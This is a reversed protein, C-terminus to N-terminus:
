CPASQPMEREQASKQPPRAVNDSTKRRAQEAKEELQIADAM